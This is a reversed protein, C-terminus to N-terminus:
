RADTMLDEFGKAETYDAPIEFLSAPPTKLSIGKLETTIRVDKNEVESRITMEELDRANWLFGEEVRGDKYTIRVKYKDTPHNGVMERGIKIKEVHPKEYAYGAEERRTMYKRSSPYLTYSVKKDGRHVAAVKALFPQAGEGNKIMKSLDMDMRVKEGAKALPIDFTAQEKSNKDFSTSVLVASFDKKGFDMYGFSPLQPMKIEPITINPTAAQLSAIGAGPGPGWPLTETIRRALEKTEYELHIGVAKTLLKTGLGLAFAQGVNRENIAVSEITIWPIEKERTDAGRAVVTAVNGTRGAMRTESRVGLGREWMTQGTQANVLRFKARVKRVNLVGTTTEDFDVLDGYLVGEVGLVEALKQPTTMDLQGGLNIGLQDRLIQDTEKVDKVNYAKKELAEIIRKRVVAPGDVDSTDNKMPLVAVQKLPNTADYYRPVHRPVACASVMMISGVVAAFRAM